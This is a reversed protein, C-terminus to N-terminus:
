SDRFNLSFSVKSASNGPLLIVNPFDDNHFVLLGQSCIRGVCSVGVKALEFESKIGFYDEGTVGTDARHLRHTFRLLYVKEPCYVRMNKNTM